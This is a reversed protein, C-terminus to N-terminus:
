GEALKAGEPGEDGVEVPFFNSSSEIDRSRTARPEMLRASRTLTEVRLLRPGLTIIGVV